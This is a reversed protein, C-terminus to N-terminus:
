SSSVHFWTSIAIDDSLELDVFLSSTPVFRDIVVISQNAILPCKHDSKSFGFKNTIRRFYIYFCLHTVGLLFFINNKMAAGYILLGVDTPTSLVSILVSCTSLANYKPYQM